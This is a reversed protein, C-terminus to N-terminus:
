KNNERYFNVIKVLATGQNTEDKLAEVEIFEKIEQPVNYTLKTNAKKPRGGKNKVKKSEEIYIKLLEYFTEKAEEITEGIGIVDAYDIAKCVFCNDEESWYINLNDNLQTAM